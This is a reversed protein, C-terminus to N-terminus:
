TSTEKPECALMIQTTLEVLQQQCAIGDRVGVALCTRRDLEIHADRVAILALRLRERDEKSADSMAFQCALDVENYRDITDAFPDPWRDLTKLYEAFALEAAIVKEIALRREEEDYELRHQVPSPAFEMTYGHRRDVNEVAQARLDSATM